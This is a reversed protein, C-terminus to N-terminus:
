AVARFVAVSGTDSVRAWTRGSDDSVTVTLPDIVANVKVPNSSNGKSDTVVVTVTVQQTDPDSYTVTLLMQEGPSFTTANLSASASPAAM